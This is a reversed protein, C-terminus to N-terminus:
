LLDALADMCLGPSALVPIPLAADLEPALHAMSAQALVIVDRGEAMKEVAAKVLTDHRSKDGSMVADFAASELHVTVEVQKKMRDAHQRVLDGSANVTGSSTCVVGIRSGLSVAKEAMPDDIKLIPVEVIKRATDVGPSTSSCTFVILEAGADQANVALRCLRRVLKPTVKGTILLDKILSEDVVHFADLGPWREELMNKFKEALFLVTHIMALRKM